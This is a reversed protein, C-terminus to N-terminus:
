QKAIWQSGGGTWQTASWPTGTTAQWPGGGWGLAIFARHSAHAGCVSTTQTAWPSGVATQLSDLKPHADLGGTCGPMKGLVQQVIREYGIARHVYMILILAMAFSRHRGAKCVLIVGGGYSETASLISRCALLLTSMVDDWTKWASSPGVHADMVDVHVTVDGNHRRAVLKQGKCQVVVSVNMAKLDLMPLEEMKGVYIPGLFECQMLLITSLLNPM